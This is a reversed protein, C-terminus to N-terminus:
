DDSGRVKPWGTYPKREAPPLPYRTDIWMGLITVIVIAALTAGIAILFAIEITAADFWDFFRIMDLLQDDIGELKM